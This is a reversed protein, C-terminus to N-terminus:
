EISSPTTQLDVTKTVMILRRISGRENYCFNSYDRQQRGSADLQTPTYSDMSEELRSAVYHFQKFLPFFSITLFVLEVEKTSLVGRFRTHNGNTYNPVDYKKDALIM